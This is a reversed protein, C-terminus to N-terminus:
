RCATKLHEILAAYRLLLEELSTNALKQYKNYDALAEEVDIELM